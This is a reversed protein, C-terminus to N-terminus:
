NRRNTDMKNQSKQLSLSSSLESGPLLRAEDAIQSASTSSDSIPESEECDAWSSSLSSPTSVDEKDLLSWEEESASSSPLSESLFSSEAIEASPWAPTTLL